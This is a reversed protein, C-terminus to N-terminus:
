SVMLSNVGGIGSAVVAGLRVPDMEPAGADAWAERTAILACQESRDMRRVEVRSLIEEPDVKMHGAIKAPQEPDWDPGMPSIGSNGALAQAWTSAVDGGLPTTMGIGTVVVNRTM